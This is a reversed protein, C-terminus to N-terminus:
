EHDIRNGHAPPNTKFRKNALREDERVILVHRSPDSMNSAGHLFERDARNLDLLEAM